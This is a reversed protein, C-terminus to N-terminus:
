LKEITTKLKSIEEELPTTKEDTLLNIINQYIYETNNKWRDCILNAQKKTAVDLYISFLTEENEVLKLNVVFQGNEKEYYETMIQTEIKEDEEIEVFKNNLETKISDPIREEFYSLAVEGKKVISYVEESDQNLVEIFNSNILESLYQQVLFYNMYNKELMFETIQSNSFPTKSTKILYLILLKNQALEETNEVFM